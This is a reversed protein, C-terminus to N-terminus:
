SGDVLEALVGRYRTMAVELTAENVAYTRARAGMGELDLEGDHAARILAALRDPRGPPLVVGCDAARVVGATESAEEVAALVPRGAALIGYLRSPVVYGALGLSLGVFHVDAASLSQALLDEEQYGLFLVNDVELVNASRRLDQQRAGAGIIVISLDDLDRLFTGARILTELDQAHGINGSHMVVFRDVLRNARAWDNDKGAPVIKSTDVWNPIVRLRGPDVGKGELREQMTTGIAVIRDARKLYAQITRRLLGIVLPNELRGLEIAIEPFVDQSIVVFPVRFRRALVLGVDGIVPPDTMCLIADPRGAALGARLAQVLFTVYNVARPVLQRRDLATSSVRVIRVGNRTETGATEAADRLRGTVVTIEFDVSLAACLDTLLRATAENGPWYYQNLVLLRPRGPRPARARM